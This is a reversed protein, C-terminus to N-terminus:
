IELTNALPAVSNSKTTKYRLLLNSVPLPPPSANTIAVRPASGNAPPRYRAYLLRSPRFRSEAM